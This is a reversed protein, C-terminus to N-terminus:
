QSWKIVLVCLWGINLVCVQSFRAPLIDTGYSSLHKYGILPLYEFYGLRKITYYTRPRIKPWVERFVKTIFTEFIANGISKQPNKWFM